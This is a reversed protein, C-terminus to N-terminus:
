KEENKQKMLSSLTKGEYKWWQPGNYSGSPSVEGRRTMIERTLTSLRWKKSEFVVESDNDVVAKVKPDKYFCIEEGILGLTEFSFKGQKQVVFNNRERLGEPVILINDLMYEIMWETRAAIAEADWNDQDTIRTRAIQLGAYNDYTHKKEQFTKNGLEQNHRILTLNGISNVLEQHIREADPGLAERWEDSLTQPMIHEVQLHSDSVDPLSKTLAEEILALFFECHSTNYFNAGSLAQKVEADNPLRLNYEQSALLKFMAERKNGSEKLEHIRKALLPFNKNEAATIKLLRRRM